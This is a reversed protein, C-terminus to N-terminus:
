RAGEGAARKRLALLELLVADRERALEDISRGGAAAETEAIVKRQLAPTVEPDGLDDWWLRDPQMFHEVFHRIGGAGGGLHFTLYPGMAAWRLGPGYAIAADVDAASAVGEDVLSLAERWLALQLRNALHGMVEKRVHIPHKGLGKYFAAAREITRPATREGGVLEVLPILHPPNFPHGTVCRGPHRCGSQIHSMPLASTSSAIIIEPPLAADLRAFLEIKLEEREPGSEQVFEADQVAAVPDKVFRWRAPDADAALGLRELAPWAAAIAAGIRAEAGEAPDSAVVELGNALFSAAWSAGITGAGIVAVRRVGAIEAM